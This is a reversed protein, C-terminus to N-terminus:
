IFSDIESFIQWIRLGESKFSPWDPYPELQSFVFGDRNFQIIHKKDTSQFRIGKVGLDQFTQRPQKEGDFKLEQHFERPSDLYIYGALQPVVASRVAEEEFAVAAHARIDIVAEVIPARPLHPFKEDTNIIIKDATKM